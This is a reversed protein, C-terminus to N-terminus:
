HQTSSSYYLKGNSARSNVTLLLSWVSEVTNNSVGFAQGDSEVIFYSSGLGNAAVQFGYSTAATGGLATTSAYMNLTIALVQADFQTSSSGALKKFLAAVDACDHCPDVTFLVSARRAQESPDKHDIRCLM